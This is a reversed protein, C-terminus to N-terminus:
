TPKIITPRSASGSVTFGGAALDALDKITRHVYDPHARAAECWDCIYMNCQFCHARERVRNPNMVIHSGCHPCGLTPAEFVGRGAGPPLGMRRAQEEPIGPSARHDVFLYGEHSRKSFVTM